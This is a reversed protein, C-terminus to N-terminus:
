NKKVYMIVTRSGGDNPLTFDIERTLTFGGPLLGASAAAEEAGRRGKMAIATGGPRVAPGIMALFSPIDSFARSVGVDFAAPYKRGLEEGRLHVAEVNNVGVVRCAQRQFFIKKEVSDVSVARVDPRVLAVPIVPFGGGSGLDLLFAGPPILPVVTLSDLFHKVVVERPECIATLNVKRNWKLLEDMFLLFRRVVDDGLPVGLAAAETQLLEHLKM